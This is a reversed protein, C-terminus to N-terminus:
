RITRTAPQYAVEIRGLLAQSPKHEPDLALANEAALTAQRQRGCRLEAEGLRYWLEATPAGRQTALSYSEVAERSRDLQALAMGELLLAQQPAEGPPYTDILNELATLAREPQGLRRYTEALNLLVPQHNPAYGLARQYDTLAERLEGASLSISGRLAWASALKSDLQLAQDAAQRAQPLNGMALYMEGARVALSPDHADLKWAEILQGVAERGAGRHWLAEAYQRRADTDLPCAELARSFLSEAREWEGRELASRGQQSLQRCTAVSRPVPGQRSLTRCAPTLALLIALWALAPRRYRHSPAYATAENTIRLEHEIASSRM